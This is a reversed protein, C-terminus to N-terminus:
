KGKEAKAQALLEYLRDQKGFIQTYAYSIGEAYFCHKEKNVFDEDEMMKHHVYARELQQKNELLNEFTSM